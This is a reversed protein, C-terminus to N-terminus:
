LFFLLNRIVAVMLLLGGAVYLWTQPGQRLGPLDEADKEVRHVSPVGPEISSSTGSKPTEGNRQILRNGGANMPSPYHIAVNKKELWSLDLTWQHASRLEWVERAEDVYELTEALNWGNVESLHAMAEGGQGQKFALGIHKVRHCDPCLAILGLLTQTRTDDDYHWREHCEVPHKPGRGNCIECRYGALQYVERRLRDWDEPAVNTRVNSFWCTKPVTEITLPFSLMAM